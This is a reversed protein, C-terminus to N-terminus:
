RSLAADSLHAGPEGDDSRCSFIGSMPSTRRGSGGVGLRTLRRDVFGKWGFSPSDQYPEAEDAFWAKSNM